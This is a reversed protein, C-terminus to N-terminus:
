SVKGGCICSQVEQVQALQWTDTLHRPLSCHQTVTHQVAQKQQSQARWSLNKM